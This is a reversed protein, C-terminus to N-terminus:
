NGIEPDEITIGFVALHNMINKDLAIFKDDKEIMLHLVMLISILSKKPIQDDVKLMELIKHALKTSQSISKEAEKIEKKTKETM